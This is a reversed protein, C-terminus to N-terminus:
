RLNALEQFGGHNLEYGFSDVEEDEDGHKYGVAERLSGRRPISQSVVVLHAVVISPVVDSCDLRLDAIDIHSHMMESNDGDDDADM